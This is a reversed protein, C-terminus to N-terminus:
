VNFTPSNEKNLHQQLPAPMNTEFRDHMVVWCDSISTCDRIAKETTQKSVLLEQLKTEYAASANDILTVMEAVTIGRVEALATLLPGEGAAAERKQQEWTAMEFDRDEIKKLRHDYIDDCMRKMVIKFFALGNALQEDTLVIKVKSDFEATELSNTVNLMDNQLTDGRVSLKGNWSNVFAWGKAVDEDDIVTPRLHDYPIIDEHTEPIYGVDYTNFRGIVQVPGRVADSVRKFLLYM